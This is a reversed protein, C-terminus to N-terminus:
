KRRRAHTIKPAPEIAAIGGADYKSSWESLCTPSRIDFYAATKQLSIHNDWMHQLVSLKFVADYHSYKPTLCSGGHLLFSRVWNRFIAYEIGHQNAIM